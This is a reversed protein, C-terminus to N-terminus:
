SGNILCKNYAMSQILCKVYMVISDCHSSRALNFSKELTMYSAHKQALGKLCPQRVGLDMNKGLVDDLGGLRLRKQVESSEQQQKSKGRPGWRGKKPDEPRWAILCKESSRGRPRVAEMSVM